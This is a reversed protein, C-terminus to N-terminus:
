PCIPNNPDFKDGFLDVYQAGTSPFCETWMAGINDGNCTFHWDDADTQATDFGGSTAGFAKVNAAFCKCTKYMACSRTAAFKCAACADGQSKFAGDRDAEPAKGEPKPPFKPIGQVKSKSLARANTPVLQSTLAVCLVFTRPAIM